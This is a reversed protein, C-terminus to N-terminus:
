GRTFIIIIIIIIIIIFVYILVIKPDPLNTWNESLTDPKEIWYFPFQLTAFGLHCIYCFTEYVLNVMSENSYFGCVLLM